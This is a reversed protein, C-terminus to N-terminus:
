LLGGQSRHPGGRDIDTAYIKVRERFVDPGLAEALLIALTTVCEQGSPAAQAGSASSTTPGREALMRPIM